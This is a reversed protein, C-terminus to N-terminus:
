CVLVVTSGRKVSVEWYRGSQKRPRKVCDWNFRNICYEGLHLCKAIGYLLCTKRTSTDPAHILAALCTFGAKLMVSMRLLHNRQWLCTSSM